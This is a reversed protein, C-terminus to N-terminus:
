KAGYCVVYFGGATHAMAHVNFRDWFKPLWWRYDEQILHANRGDSLHKAAPGTHVTFFGVELTLLALDDLVNELLEPEVHELVDICCVMETPKPREAFHPVGPDYHAVSAQHDLQLNQALRGKGCGYDLVQTIGMQNIISSVAPAYSVSAVGYNPNEHMRQQEQQYAASITQM